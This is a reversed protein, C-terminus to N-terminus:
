KNMENLENQHKEQKLVVNEDHREKKDTILSWIIDDKVQILRKM